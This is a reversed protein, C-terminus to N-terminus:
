QSIGSLDAAARKGKMGFSKEETSHANVTNPIDRVRKRETPLWKGLPTDICAKASKCGCFQNSEQFTGLGSQKQPLTKTRARSRSDNSKQEGVFFKAVSEKPGIATHQM